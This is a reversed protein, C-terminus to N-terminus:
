SIGTVICPITCKIYLPYIINSNQFDVNVPNGLTCGITNDLNIPDPENVVFVSRGELNPVLESITCKGFNYVPCILRIQSTKNELIHYCYCVKPCESPIVTVCFSDIVLPLYYTSALCISTYFVSEQPLIACHSINFCAPAIAIGPPDIVILLYHAECEYLIIISNVSAQPFITYYGIKSYQRSSGLAPGFPDIVLPLYYAVALSNTKFNM